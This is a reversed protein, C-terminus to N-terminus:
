QLGPVYQLINVRKKAGMNCTVAVSQGVPYPEQTFREDHWNDFSFLAAHNTISM